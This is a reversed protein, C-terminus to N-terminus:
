EEDFLDDANKIIKNIVDFGFGRSAMFRIQKAKDKLDVPPHGFKKLWVDHARKLETSALSALAEAILESNLGQQKLEHKVRANGYREGKVKSVSAAVRVDSQWNHLALDDLVEDAISEGLEHECEFQRLSFLIKKRLEVRSYERRSLYTIARTRIKLRWDKASLLATDPAHHAQAANHTNASHTSNVKKSGEFQEFPEFADDDDNGHITKSVM